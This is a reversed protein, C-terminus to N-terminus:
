ATHFLPRLVTCIPREGFVLNRAQMGPAMVEWSHQALNGTTCLDHYHTIAAQLDTM